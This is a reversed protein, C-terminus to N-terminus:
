ARSSRPRSVRRRLISRAIARWGLLFISLVVTTVAIFAPAVLQGSLGRLLMGLVVTCGVILLGTFRIQVPHRWVRGLLWGLLAGAAFPWLTALFGSATGAEAHSGRGILVFVAILLLDIAAALIPSIRIVPATGRPSESPQAAAFTM